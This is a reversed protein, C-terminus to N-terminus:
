KYDECCPCKVRVVSGERGSNIVPDGAEHQFFPKLREIDEKTYSQIEIDDGSKVWKAKNSIRGIVKYVKHFDDSGVLKPVGAVVKEVIANEGNEKTVEDGESFCDYDLVAFLAPVGKVPITVVKVKM